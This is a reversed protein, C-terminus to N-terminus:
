MLSPYLKRLASAANIIVSILAPSISIGFVRSVKVLHPWNPIKEIRESIDNFYRLYEHADRLSGGHLKGSVIAQYYNEQREHVEQWAVRKVHVLVSRFVFTPGVYFVLLITIQALLGEGTTINLSPHTYVGGFFALGSVLLASITPTLILDALFGFGGCKDPNFPALRIQGHRRLFRIANINTWAIGAFIHVISPLLLAHLYFKQVRTGFYGFPFHISDWFDLPALKGPSLNQFTNWAFALFGILFLFAFLARSAPTGFGVFTVMPRLVQTRFSFAKSDTILNQYQTRTRTAAKLSAHISVPMILQILYWGLVSPHQFYGYGNTIIFSHDKWACLTLAVAVFVTLILNRVWFRRLGIKGLLRHPVFAPHRYFAYALSKV